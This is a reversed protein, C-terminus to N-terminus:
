DIGSGRSLTMLEAAIESLPLVADVAGTNIAALPMSAFSATVPDQVIVRGGMGKVTQVGDTGDLGSGTLVVAIVRGSLAYAASEFLPNASSLLHRIKYGDMLHLTRDPRVVLHHSAPALYVTGARLTEGEVAAKVELTCRPALIDELSVRTTSTRHLVVAIPLPFDRPLASLVQSIANLGDGSAAILVLDFLRAPAKQSDTLHGRVHAVEPGHEAGFM